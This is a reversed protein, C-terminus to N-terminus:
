LPLTDCAIRFGSGNWSTNPEGCMRYASRCGVAGHYWGSGRVVKTRDSAAGKPNTQAELSYNERFDNCWEDLNGHMDFLGWANPAFSGVPMIKRRFEGIVNNSNPKNGRLGLNCSLWNIFKDFTNNFYPRNGNYNAQLTTLNNGTNFPTTTGARCAYEWEAETPLRCSMWDAFAKADNWSVHTVPYNHEKEPRINGKEDCKWNVGRKFKYEDSVEFLSSGYVNKDADTIYGTADVFAKFQGITVKNKSMKFANLTVKHQIEGEDRGAESEPSGMLFTGAPISAWEFIPKQQAYLSITCLVISLFGTWKLVQKKM